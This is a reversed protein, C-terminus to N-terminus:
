ALHLAAPEDVHLAERRVMRRVERDEGVRVDDVLELERAERKRLAEAPGDVGDSIRVVDVVRADLPESRRVAVREAEGLIVAERAVRRRQERNM